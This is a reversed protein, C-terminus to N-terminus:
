TGTRFRVSKYYFKLLCVNKRLHKLFTKFANESCNKQLFYKKRKRYCFFQYWVPVTGTGYTTGYLDIDIGLCWWQRIDVHYLAPVSLSSYNYFFLSLCLFYVFASFHQM